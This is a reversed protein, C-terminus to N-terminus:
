FSAFPRIRLEPLAWSPAPSAWEISLEFLLAPPLERGTARRRQEAPKADQCSAPGPSSHATRQPLFM